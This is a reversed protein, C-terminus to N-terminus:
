IGGFRRHRGRFENIAEMLHRENFDPWYVDTYWFETYAAQWLLFNSIRKEGSTRILLDPDPIGATYLRNSLEEESLEDIKLRGANIDKIIERVGFLIEDRSGYNLAINLTLGSNKETSRTVKKIENRIEEPLGKMEGIVKIRVNKGGLESDAKRLYELLLSMLTDVENKPRKWNETSFAYVTLYKIGIEDCFHVIKRLTNSGEKHGINRPLGRKKAWRGNGDMIIAIHTPLLMNDQVYKYKKFIKNLFSM